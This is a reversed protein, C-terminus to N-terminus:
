GPWRPVPPTSGGSRPCTGPASSRRPRATAYGTSRARGGGLRDVRGTRRARAYAARHPQPSLDLDYPSLAVPPRGSVQALYTVEGGAAPRFDGTGNLVRLIQVTIGDRARVADVVDAVEQWWPVSVEFPSLAGLPAGTEDLLVLTVIRGM